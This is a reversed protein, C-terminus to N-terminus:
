IVKKETYFKEMGNTYDLHCIVAESHIVNLQSCM